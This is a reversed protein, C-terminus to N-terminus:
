ARLVCDFDFSDFSKSNFFPLFMDLEFLLVAGFVDVDEAFLDGSCIFIDNECVFEHVFPLLKKKKLKQKPQETQKARHKYNSNCNYNNNNNGNTQLNNTTCMQM